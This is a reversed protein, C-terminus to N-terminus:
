LEYDRPYELIARNQILFAIDRPADVRQGALFERSVRVEPHGIVSVYTSFTTRLIVYAPLEKKSSKVVKNEVPESVVPESAVSSNKKAQTKSQPKSEVDLASTLDDFDTQVAM